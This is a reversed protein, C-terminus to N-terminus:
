YENKVELMNINLNGEMYIQRGNEDGLYQVVYYKDYVDILVEDLSNTRGDANSSNICIRIHYNPTDIHNLKIVDDISLVNNCKLIANKLREKQSQNLLIKIKSNFLEISNSRDILNALNNPTYLYEMLTNKLNDVESTNEGYISNKFLLANSVIFQTNNGNLYHIVGCINLSSKNINNINKSSKSEIATISKVSDLIDKMATEDNIVVKGWRENNIEIRLPIAIELNKELEARDDVIVLNNYLIKTNRYVLTCCIVLMLVYIFLIKFKIRKM